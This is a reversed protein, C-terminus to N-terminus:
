RTGLACRRPRPKWLRSVGGMETHVSTALIHEQEDTFARNHGGRNDTTGPIPQTDIMSTPCGAHKWVLYRDLFSRYKVHPAREKLLHKMTNLPYPRTATSLNDKIYLFVELWNVEHTTYDNYRARKTNPKRQKRKYATMDTNYRHIHTHTYTHPAADRSAPSPVLESHLRGGSRGCPPCFRWAAFNALSASLVLKGLVVTCYTAKSVAEDQYRVTNYMYLYLYILCPVVFPFAFMEVLPAIFPRGSLVQYVRM